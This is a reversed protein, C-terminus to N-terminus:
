RKTNRRVLVGVRFLHDTVTTGGCNEAISAFKAAVVNEVERINASQKPEERTTTSPTTTSCDGNENRDDLPTKTITNYEPAPGQASTEFVTRVTRVFSYYQVTHTLVFGSIAEFTGGLIPGQRNCVFM